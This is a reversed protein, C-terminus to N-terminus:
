KLPLYLVSLVFSQGAYFQISLICSESIKVPLLHPEYFLHGMIIKNQFTISKQRCHNKNAKSRGYM